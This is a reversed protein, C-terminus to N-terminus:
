NCNFHFVHLFCYTKTQIFSERKLKNSFTKNLTLPLFRRGRIFLFMFIEFDNKQCFRYWDSIFKSLLVYNLLICNYSLIKDLIISLFRLKYNLYKFNARASDM